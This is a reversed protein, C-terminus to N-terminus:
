PEALTPCQTPDFTWSYINTSTSVSAACCPASTSGGSREMHSHPGTYCGGCSGSPVTGLQKSSSSLNYVTNSSVLPGDVHGYMVSGIYCVANSQAYLEVKITRRYKNACSSSCCRLEVITRISRVTPYNVRLYLGGSGAIDVPSSWGVCTGHTGCSGSCVDGGTCAGCCYQTRGTICGSIPSRVYATAM